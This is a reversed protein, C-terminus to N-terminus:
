GAIQGSHAAVQRLGLLPAYNHFAAARRRDAGACCPTSSGTTAVLMESDLPANQWPNTCRVSAQPIIQRQM